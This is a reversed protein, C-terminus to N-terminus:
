AAEALGPNPAPRRPRYDRFLRFLARPSDPAHIVGTLGPIAAACPSAFSQLGRKALIASPVSLDRWASSDFKESFAIASIASYRLAAMLEPGDSAPMLAGGVITDRVADRLVRAARCDASPLAVLDIRNRRLRLSLAYLADIGDDANMPAIARWRTLDFLARGALRQSAPDPCTVWSVGAHVATRLTKIQLEPSLRSAALASADLVIRSYPNATM